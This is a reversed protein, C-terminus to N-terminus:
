YRGWPSAPAKNAALRDMAAKRGGYLDEVQTGSNGFAGGLLGAGLSLLGPNKKIFDGITGLLGTGAKPPTPPIGVGPAGPIQGPPPAPMDPPIPGPDTPVGGGGAAAWPDGAFSGPDWSGPVGPNAAGVPPGAIEGSSPGLLGAGGGGAGALPANTLGAEWPAVGPGGFGPLNFYQGAAGGALAALVGGGQEMFTPTTDMAERRNSSPDPVWQDGVKKYSITQGADKETKIQLQLNGNRDVSFMYNSGSLPGMGQGWYNRQDGTFQVTPDSTYSPTGYDGWGGVQRQSSGFQLDNSNFTPYFVGTRPDTYGQAM